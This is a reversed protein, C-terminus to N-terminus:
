DKKLKSIIKELQERNEYPIKVQGKSKEDLNVTVNADFYSKLKQEYSKGFNVKDNKAVPINSSKKKLKFSKINNETDRVSLHLEQIKNFLILQYKSDDELSLLARAHGMSILGEKVGDRIQSPLKLLRLYNSITARDKGVKESLEEQTLELVAMIQQYSEAVEIANLDERQINEILGMEMAQQDDVSLIHANIKKLGALKSAQLRREGSILQFKGESTKRVTIPQIIGQQRISQSLEILAHEDFFKRPQFPSVEIESILLESSQEEKKQEKEEVSETSSGALLADLGRGLGKRVIKKNQQM